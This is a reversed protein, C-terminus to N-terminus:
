QSHMNLVTISSSPMRLILDSVPNQPEAKQNQGSRMRGGGVWVARTKPVLNVSPQHITSILGVMSPLIM